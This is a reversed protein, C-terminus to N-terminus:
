ITRRLACIGGSVAIIIGAFLMLPFKDGTEPVPSRDSEVEVTQDRSDLDNHM